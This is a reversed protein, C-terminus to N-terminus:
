MWEKSQAVYESIMYEEDAQQEPTLSEWYALWQCCAGGCDGFCVDCEAM